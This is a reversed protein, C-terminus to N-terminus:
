QYVVIFPERVSGLSITIDKPFYHDFALKYDCQNLLMYFAARHAFDKQSKLVKKFFPDEGEMKAILVDWAKLQANMVSQPTRYVKVGASKTLWQLDASYRDMAM